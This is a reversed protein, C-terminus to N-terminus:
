ENPSGKAKESQLILKDLANRARNLRSKVTGVSLHLDIAVDHYTQQGGIRTSAMLVDYHAPTLKSKHAEIQQFTYFGARRPRPRNRTM